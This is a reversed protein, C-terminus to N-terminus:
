KGANLLRKTQAVVGKKQMALVKNALEHAEEVEDQLRQVHLLLERTHERTGLAAM